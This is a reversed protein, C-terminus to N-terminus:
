HKQKHEQQRWREPSLGFRARFLRGFYGADTYGVSRAIAAVPDDRWSLSHSARELRQEIVFRHLPQGYAAAFQRNLHRPSVGFREALAALPLDETIHAVVHEHLRTLWDPDDAAPDADLGGLSFSSLAWCLHARVLHCGLALSPQAAGALAHLEAGLHIGLPQPPTTWGGEAFQAIWREQAARAAPGQPTLQLQYGTIVASGHPVRWAHRQGPAMAFMGGAPVVCERDRWRYAVTGSTVLSLEHWAHAHLGAPRVPTAEVDHLRLVRVQWEDWTITGLQQVIRAMVRNFQQWTPAASM